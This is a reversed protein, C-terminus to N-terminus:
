KARGLGEFIILGEMGMPQHRMHMHEHGEHMKFGWPVM